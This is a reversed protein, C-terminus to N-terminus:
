ENVTEGSSHSYECNCKDCKVLHEILTYVFKVPFKELVTEGRSIREYIQCPIREEFDGYIYWRLMYEDVLSELEEYSKATKEAKETAQLIVEMKVENM